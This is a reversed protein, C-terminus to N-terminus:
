AWMDMHSCKSVIFFSFCCGFLCIKKNQKPCICKIFWVNHKNRTKPWDNEGDIWSIWPIIAPLIISFVKSKWQQNPISISICTHIYLKQSKFLFASQLYKHTCHFSSSITMICIQTTHNYCETNNYTPKCQKSNENTKKKKM